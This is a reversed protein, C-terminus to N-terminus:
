GASQDLRRFAEQATTCADAPPLAPRAIMVVPLGLRRAAEIKAYAPGGSNKAVLASIDYGQMLRVEDDVTFPGRALILEHRALPLPTKPPDILRVLFWHRQSTAFADLRKQGTTLFVRTGLHQLAGAAVEEDMVDHWRDGSLPTWAPRELRLLSVTARTCAEVTNQSMIQAFPHTADVVIDIAQAALYDALGGAGGFGGRLTRGPLPTPSRTAGALSTTVDFRGDEVCLRALMAAEHTGGLILLRLNSRNGSM